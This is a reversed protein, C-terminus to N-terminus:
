LPDIGQKAIRGMRRWNIYEFSDVAQEIEGDYVVYGSNVEAPLLTRIVKLGRCFDQHPTQASKIEIPIISIGQDLVVDVENGTKDRFFNLNSHLGQNYRKKLLEIVVMNEFVAGRQPHSELHRRNEIGLLFCLLGTDFFYIKPSKILRKGINRFFPPMMFVIYSAELISIWRGITPVSVGCDNALSNANLLSSARSALLRVFKEFLSLNEIQSIRRLDREIYTELYNSYYHKPDIANVHRGPYFGNLMIEDLSQLTACSALEGLTFPLLKIMATRGALSQSITQSVEFQQSGTLVYMGNAKKEDVIGQLYSPIEPARQIEDLIAGEPFKKLFSRPDEIALRRQDPYEFNIYPKEPFLARALTTKGSQRPGTISLIPYQAFLQKCVQEIERKIM